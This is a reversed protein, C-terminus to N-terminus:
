PAFPFSDWHSIELSDWDLFLEERQELPTRTGCWWGEGQDLAIPAVNASSASLQDEGEADHDGNEDSQLTLIKSVYRSRRKSTLKERQKSIANTLLTLIEHYHAAQPSQLTFLSLTDRAGNFASDISVDVSRKAFIEFGLVLGAAFVLAKLICMNGYLFNADRAETCTQIMFVAADLCASAIQSRALGGSAPQATLTAVLIPRTALMVAFYYLCSVHISGIAAGRPTGDSSNRESESSANRLCAPLAREWAQIEGLLHEVVPTSLEKREYLTEVVGNIISVIQHSALLRQSDDDQTISSFDNIIRHIDSHLGATAAPRGLISNALMDVIRLSIWVRLRLKDEPCAMDAYSERCHLGLAVAARTAIGLYMFAANRRCEGLLYFAMLLFSRVIDIDPDELMGDFAQARSRRFYHQGVDRAAQLSQVQAGIAVILGVSARKQPSAQSGDDVDGQLFTAIEAQPFVDILGETADQYCRTLALKEAVDLDPLGPAVSGEGSSPVEKELMTESQPNHSFQSPGIQEAVLQRVIQLFSISAAGGIYVREGRLNLLMRSHLSASMSSSPMPDTTAQRVSGTPSGSVDLSQRSDSPSPPRFTDRIGGSDAGMISVAAADQLLDSSLVPAETQAGPCVAPDPAPAPDAPGALVPNGRRAGRSRVSICCRNGIGRRLCHTCPTTGSCKKKVERCYDCAEATRRRQSPPVRPRPM